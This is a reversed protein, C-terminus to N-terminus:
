AVVIKFSVNYKLIANERASKQESPKIDNFKKIDCFKNNVFAKCDDFCQLILARPLKHFSVFTEAIVSLAPCHFLRTNSYEPIEYEFQRALVSKALTAYCEFISQNLSGIENVTEALLLCRNM